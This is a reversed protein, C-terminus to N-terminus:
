WFFWERTWLVYAGLLFNTVGHMIICAGLSKTRLLLLSIMVGWVIATLWQVHVTAFFLPVLVLATPDYEGVKALKFDNPAAISRWLFDRWFLEEMVPVVLSAAAWRIAIFSWAAGSSHFFDFPNFAEKAVDRTMRTWSLWPQSMLLKEMGIWQVIGIVGMIIGLWWYDWSIKTYHRWLLVLSVPVIVAKCIYSLPYLNKWESGAWTFAMFIAMPLIYAWFDFDRQRANPPKHYDLTRRDPTTM